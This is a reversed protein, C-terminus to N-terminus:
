EVVSIPAMHFRVQLSTSHHGTSSVFGDVSVDGNKAGVSQLSRARDGGFLQGFVGEADTAGRSQMVRSCKTANHLNIAVAPNALAIATVHYRISDVELDASMSKRRVPRNHFLDKVTIRTGHHARAVSSLGSAVTEGGRM